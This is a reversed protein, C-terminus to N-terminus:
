GLAVLTFRPAPPSDDICWMELTLAAFRTAPGTVSDLWALSRLQGPAFHDAVWAITAADVEAATALLGALQTAPPQGPTGGVVAAHGTSPDRLVAASAADPASFPALPLALAQGLEAVTEPLALWTAFAADDPWLTNLDLRQLRGFHRQTAPEHTMPRETLWDPKFLTHIPPTPVAAPGLTLRRGRASFSFPRREEFAHHTRSREPTTPARQIAALRELSSRRTPTMWDM